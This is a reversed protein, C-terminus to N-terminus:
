FRFLPRWWPITCVIILLTQAYLLATRRYKATDTRGRRIFVASLHVDLFAITMILGHYVGFFRLESGAPLGDAVNLAVNTMPSFVLYLSAGMLFQIDVARGFFKGYRAAEESWADERSLARVAMAIAMVGTLIVAWRWWAHAILIYDYMSNLKGSHGM